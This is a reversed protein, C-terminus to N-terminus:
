VVINSCHGDKDDVPLIFRIGKCTPGFCMQMFDERADNLLSMSDDQQAAVVGIGSRFFLEVIADVYHPPSTTGQKVENYGMFIPTQPLPELWVKNNIVEVFDGEPCRQVDMLWQKANAVV